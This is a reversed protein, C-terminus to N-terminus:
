FSHWAAACSNRFARLNTRIALTGRRNESFICGKRWVTWGTMALKYCGTTLLTKYATTILLKYAPTIYAPTIVSVFLAKGPSAPPPGHLSGIGSDLWANTCVPAFLLSLASLRRYLSILLLPRSTTYEVGIFYRVRLVPTMQCLGNRWARIFPRAKQGWAIRPPM